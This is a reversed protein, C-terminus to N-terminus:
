GHQAARPVPPVGPDCVTQSGTESVTQSVTESGPESVTQSVTESGPETVTQSGTQPVTQPM